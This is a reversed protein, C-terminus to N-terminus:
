ALWHRPGLVKVTVPRAAGRADEIRQITFDNIPRPLADVDFYGAELIEPPRAVPMMGPKLECRFAFHHQDVGPEYYIGRLEATTLEVGIEERLERILAQELSEKPERGGGPLDWGRHGYSQRVLLVRGQPDFIAAAVGLHSRRGILDNYLGGFTAILWARV